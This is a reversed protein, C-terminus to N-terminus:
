RCFIRQRGMKGLPTDLDRDGQTEIGILQVEVNSNAQEIRRAVWKSQAIALLSQRTGLKLIRNM